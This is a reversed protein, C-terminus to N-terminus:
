FIFLYIKFVKYRYHGVKAWVIDGNLPRKGLLCEECRWKTEDITEVLDVAKDKDDDIDPYNRTRICEKHYASPCTM